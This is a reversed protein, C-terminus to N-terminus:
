GYVAGHRYPPIPRYRRALVRTLRHGIAFPGAFHARPEAQSQGDTAEARNVCCLCRSHGLNQVLCQWDLVTASM